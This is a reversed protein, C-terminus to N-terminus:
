ETDESESIVSWEEIYYQPYKSGSWHEWYNQGEKKIYAEAAEKNSFVAEIETCGYEYDCVCTVIYVTMIIM